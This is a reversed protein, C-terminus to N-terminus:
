LCPIEFSVDVGDVENTIVLKSAHGKLISQCITLGLGVGVSHRMVDEDLFFPKMIKDIVAPSINPGQNFVSMRLRHPQALEARVLIQSNDKAFKVANHILRNLV